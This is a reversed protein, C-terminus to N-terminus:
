RSAVEWRERLVRQWDTRHVLVAEAAAMTCVGIVVGYWLGLAGCGMGFAFLLELPVALIYYACLNLVSCVRQRGQGRLLCSFIANGTDGLENLAVVVFLKRAEAIVEPDSTFILPLWKRLTLMLLCNSLSLFAAVISAARVVVLYNQSRQGVYNALRVSSCIGISFALQFSFSSITTVITQAALSAEGFQASLFTIVRFAFSEALVMIIGPGGLALLPGVDHLVEWSLPTWCEPHRYLQVAICAALLWYTGVLAWAAGLPANRGAYHLLLAPGLAALLAYTPAAYRGQTQLFRKSTEFLVVAPAAFVLVRLFAAADARLDAEVGILARQPFAWLLGVPVCGALLVLTCQQYHRGVATYDRAGYATACLTDMATCFGFVVVPGSVYYFTLALSAASFVATSQRGAFYLPAAMLLAFQVQFVLLTPLANRVLYALEARVSSDPPTTEIKLLPSHELVDPSAPSSM